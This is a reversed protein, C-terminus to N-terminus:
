ARWTYRGQKKKVRKSKRVSYASFGNDDWSFSVGPVKVTKTADIIKPNNSVANLLSPDISGNRIATLTPLFKSTEDTTMVSEGPMLWAPISDKGRIGGELNIVGDAFQAGSVLAKAQAINGLVTAITTATAILNGPFPVSQSSATGKAIAEATSIGIQFLAFAKAQASGKEFFQSVAGSLISLSTGIAQTTARDLEVRKQQYQKERELDEERQTIENEVIVERRKALRDQEEKFNEEEQEAQSEAFGQELERIRELAAERASVRADEKAQIATKQKNITALIRSELENQRNLIERQKATSAAITGELNARAQAVELRQEDTRLTEPTFELEQEAQLVREKALRVFDKQNELELKNAKRLAERQEEFTKTFDRTIILLDQIQRSRRATAETVEIEIQRIRVLTDSLKSADDVAGSIEDGIGKFADGMQSLGDLNGSLFTLLGKGFDAVRGILVDVTAGIQGFLKNLKDGGAQTKTFATVLSTVAIVLAGIGTAIIATRLLKFTKTLGIVSKASKAAGTAMDGLGVGMINVRNATSKLQDGLSGTVDELEESGKKADDTSKDLNGIAKDAAEVQSKDVVYEIRVQAV